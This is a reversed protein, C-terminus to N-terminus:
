QSVKILYVKDDVRMIQGSPYTMYRCCPPKNEQLQTDTITYKVSFCWSRGMEFTVMWSQVAMMLSILASITEIM